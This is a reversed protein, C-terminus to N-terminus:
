SSNCGRVSVVANWLGLDLRMAARGSGGPHHRATNSAGRGQMIMNKRRKGLYLLYEPVTTGELGREAGYVKVGCSTRKQQLYM